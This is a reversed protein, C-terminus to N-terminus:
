PIYSQGNCKVAFAKISKWSNLFPHVLCSDEFFQEFGWPSLSLMKLSRESVGGVSSTISMGSSFSSFV